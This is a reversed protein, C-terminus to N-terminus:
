SSILSQLNGAATREPSKEPMSNTFYDIEAQYFHSIDEDKMVLIDFYHFSSTLQYYLLSRFPSLNSFSYRGMLSGFNDYLLFYRYGSREFIRLTSLCDEVYNINDFVDCEFLVIPHNRSIL